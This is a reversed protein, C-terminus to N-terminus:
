FGVQTQVQIMNYDSAYSPCARTYQAQIRCKNFYWYQLGITYNTQRADAHTNKDLWDFSAVAELKKCVPVMATAYVGQSQVQKDWGKLWEARLNFAKSTYEAGATIRDRRYNQGVLIGRSEDSAIAHGHGLQGSVVVRLPEIVRYDLKLIFDKESNGDSKNIGQGNMVAVEYNLGTNGLGGFVVLGLDRGGQNGMLPDSFGVMWRVAQSYCDVLEVKAPSMPNEMSLSSKFQGMRVNLAKGFSYTTYYELSSEKFDHMYQFSWNKTIQAKAWVVARKFNFTNSDDSSNYEYGGQVYGSIQIRDALSEAAKVVDRLTMEGKTTTTNNTEEAGAHLATGMTLMAAALMIKHNM